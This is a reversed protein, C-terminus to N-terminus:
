DNKKLAGVNITQNYAQRPFGMKTVKIRNVEKQAQKSTASAKKEIFKSIKQKIAEISDKSTAQTLAQKLLLIIKDYCGAAYDFNGESLFSDAKISLDKAENLKEM